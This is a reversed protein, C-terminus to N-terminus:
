APADLSEYSAPVPESTTPDLGCPDSGEYYWRAACSNLQKLLNEFRIRRKNLLAVGDRKRQWSSLCQQRRDEDEDVEIRMAAKQGVAAKSRMREPAM